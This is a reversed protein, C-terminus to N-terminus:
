RDCRRGRPRVQHVPPQPHGDRAAPLARGVIVSMSYDIYARQMEEEINIKEIRDTVNQPAVEVPTPEGASDGNAENNVEDSM